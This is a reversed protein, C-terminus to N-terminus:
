RKRSHVVVSPFLLDLSGRLTSGGLQFQRLVAYGVLLPPAMFPGRKSRHISRRVHIKPAKIASAKNPIMASFKPMHPAGNRPAVFAPLKV